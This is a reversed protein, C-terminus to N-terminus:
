NLPNSSYMFRKYWVDFSEKDEWITFSIYNGLNDKEYNAGPGDVRRLLSFFRFGGLTALRSKRDAWRKEFKADAGARVTFRNTAIYKQTIQQGPSLVRNTSAEEFMDRGMGIFSRARTRGNFAVANCFFLCVLLFLQM